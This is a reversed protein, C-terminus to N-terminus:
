KEHNTIGTNVAIMASTNEGFNQVKNDGKHKYHTSGILNKSLATVKKLALIAVVASVIAAFAGVGAIILEALLM